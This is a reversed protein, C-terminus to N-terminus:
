QAFALLALGCCGVWAHAQPPLVGDQQLGIDIFPNALRTPIQTHQQIPIVLQEIDAVAGSVLIEAM